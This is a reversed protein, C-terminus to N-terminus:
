EEGQVTCFPDQSWVIAMGKATESLGLRHAAGVRREAGIRTERGPPEM